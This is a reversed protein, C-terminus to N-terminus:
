GTSSFTAPPTIRPNWSRKGHNKPLLCARNSITDSRRRGTMANRPSGSFEGTSRALADRAPANAATEANTAYRILDGSGAPFGISLKLYNLDNDAIVVDILRQLRELLLHLTFTEEAFHLTAVVELLGRLALGALLGLGDAAGALEGAFAGLAFAQKRLGLRGSQGAGQVLGAARPRPRGKHTQNAKLIRAATLGRGSDAVPRSEM